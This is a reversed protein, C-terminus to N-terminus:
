DYPLVVQPRVVPRRWAWTPGLMFNNPVIELISEDKCRVCKIAVGPLMAAESTDKATRMFHYITWRCCMMLGTPIVQYVIGNKHQAIKYGQSTALSMDLERKICEHDFVSRACELCTIGEGDDPRFGNCFTQCKCKGGVRNGTYSCACLTNKQGESTHAHHIHWELHHGCFQCGTVKTFEPVPM